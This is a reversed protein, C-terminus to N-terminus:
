RTTLDAAHPSRAVRFGIHSTGTYLNQAQRAAPRFRYCFDSACLFSGGKIVTVPDAPQAPDFGRDGASRRAQADHGPAYPTSTLEWVNGIMDHLGLANGEFSAVPAVGKFGDRGADAIPFLGQWTNATNVTDTPRPAARAAFEWEAETPLRAGVWRAYAEADQRTVHVVPEEANAGTGDPGAPFRWSAGEVFRWWNLAQPIAQAPAVFVASGAPITEGPGGPEQAQWGREARTVYGTAMIFAEFQANTVETKAMAFADVCTETAPREEPYGQADGMEFCGGEIDIWSPEAGHVSAALLAPGLLAAVRM